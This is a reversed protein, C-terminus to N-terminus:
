RLRTSCALAVNQSAGFQVARDQYSTVLAQAAAKEANFLAAAANKIDQRLGPEFDRGEAKNIMEVFQAVAGNTGAYELKEPGRVVSNDISQIFATLAATSSFLDENDLLNIVKGYAKGSEEFGDLEDHLQENLKIGRALTAENEAKGLAAAEVEDDLRQQEAAIAQTENQQVFQQVAGHLQSIRQAGLQRLQPDKSRLMAKADRTQSQMVRVMEQDLQNATSVDGLGIDIDNITNQREAELDLMDQRARRNILHERAGLAGALLFFAPFPM